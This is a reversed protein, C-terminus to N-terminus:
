SFLTTQEEATAETASIGNSKEEQEKAAQLEARQQMREAIQKEIAEQKEPPMADIEEETLGMEKLIADRMKEAPTMAMYERFAKVAPDEDGLSESLKGQSVSSEIGDAEARNQLNIRLKAFSEEYAQESQHDYGADAKFSPTPAVPPTLALQEEERFDEKSRLGTASLSYQGGIGSISNM